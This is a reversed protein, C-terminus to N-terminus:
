CRCRLSERPRADIGAAFWVGAPLLVTFAARTTSSRVLTSASSWRGASLLCVTRLAPRQPDIAQRARDSAALARDTERRPFVKQEFVHHPVSVPHDRSRHTKRLRPSCTLGATSATSMCIPRRRRLMQWGCSAGIITVHATLSKHKACYQSGLIGERALRM